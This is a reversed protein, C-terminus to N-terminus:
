REAAQAVREGGVLAVHEHAHVDADLVAAALDLVLVLVRADVLDVQRLEGFVADFRPHGLEDVLRGSRMCSRSNSCRWTLWASSGSLSTAQAASLTSSVVTPMSM